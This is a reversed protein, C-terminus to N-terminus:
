YKREKLNTIFEILDTRFGNAEFMNLNQISQEYYYDVAQQATELVNLDKYLTIIREVDKTTIDKKGFINLLVAKQKPDCEQLALIFLFTKKGEFIDGGQQKGFEKPDGTVDLLDDQIQFGIGIQEGINELRHLEEDSADAVIGGMTFAASILAATKGRIMDMYDEVNMELLEEFDLDYAQGECVTKASNFFVDLLSFYQTKSFQANEGYYQLQEFAWAYMADGSLIAVSENWKKYVTPEGRRTPASDMIDDHLLTFNHLLELAVAAPAAEEIEGNNLGCSSLTFYPRIRKGGMALMYRVPKYLSKPEEPLSLQSLEKEILEYIQQQIDTSIM